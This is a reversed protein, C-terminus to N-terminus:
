AAVRDCALIRAVTSPTVGVEVAIRRRQWGLRWLHRVKADRDVAKAADRKRLSMGLKGLDDKIIMVTTALKQAMQVANDGSAYLRAVAARRALIAAMDLTPRVTHTLGLKRVWLAVLNIHVGFQAAMESRTKGAAVLGPVLAMEPRPVPGGKQHGRKAVVRDRLAQDTKLDDYIARTSCGFRQALAAVTWGAAAMPLVEARRAITKASLTRGGNERRQQPPLVIAGKRAASKIVETSYGLATGIDRAGMGRAALEAIQACRQSIAAPVAYPGRIAPHPVLAMQVHDHRVVSISVQLIDSIARIAWGEAHLVRVQDRRDMIEKYDVRTQVLGKRPTNPNFKPLARGDQAVYRLANTAADWKLVPLGSAWVPVVQVVDPPVACGYRAAVEAAVLAARTTAGRELDFVGAGDM